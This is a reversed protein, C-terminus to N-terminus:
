PVHMILFTRILKIGRNSEISEATEKASKHKEQNRVGLIKGRKEGCVIKAKEQNTQEELPERWRRPRSLEKPNSVLTLSPVSSHM